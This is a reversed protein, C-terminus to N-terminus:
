LGLLALKEGEVVVEGALVRERTYDFGVTKLATRVRRNSRYIRVDAKDVVATGWIGVVIPVAVCVGLGDM